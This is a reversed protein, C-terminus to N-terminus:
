SKLRAQPIGLDKCIMRVTVENIEIHRPVATTKLNLLNYFVSHKTGERLLTCNHEKLHKILAQRKM